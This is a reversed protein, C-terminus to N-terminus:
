HHMRCSCGPESRIKTNKMPKMKENTFYPTQTRMYVNPLLMYAWRSNKNMWYSCYLECQYEKLISLSFAIFDNCFISSISLIKFYVLYFCISFVTNYQVLYFSYHFNWSCNFTMTLCDRWGKPFCSECLPNWDYLCLLIDKLFVLIFKYKTHIM